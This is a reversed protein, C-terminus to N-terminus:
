VICTSAPITLAILNAQRIAPFFQTRPLLDILEVSRKESQEHQQDSWVDFWSMAENELNDILWTFLVSCNSM